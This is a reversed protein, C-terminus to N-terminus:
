RSSIFEEQKKINVYIAVANIRNKANLKLKIREVHTQITRTSINLHCAIEKDSFGNSLFQMIENERNSLKM